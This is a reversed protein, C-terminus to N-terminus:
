ITRENEIVKVLDEITKMLPAHKVNNESTGLIGAVKALLEERNMM